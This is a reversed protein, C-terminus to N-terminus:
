ASQQGSEITAAAGLADGLIEVVIRCCRARVIDKAAHLGIALRLFSQLLTGARDVHNRRDDRVVTVHGVSVMREIDWTVPGTPESNRDVSGALSANCSNRRACASASTRQKQALGEPADASYCRNKLRGNTGSVTEQEYGHSRRSVQRRRQAQLQLPHEPRGFDRDRWGDGGRLDDGQWIKLNEIFFPPIYLRTLQDM